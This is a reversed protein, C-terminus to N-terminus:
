ANAKRRALGILGLLGSGFLWVASPIPVQSLSGEFVPQFNPLTTSQPMIFSSVSAVTTTGDGNDTVDWLAEIPANFNVINLDWLMNPTGTGRANGYTGDGNDVFTVDHATWVDGLFISANEISITGNDFDWKWSQPDTSLGIPGGDPYSMLFTYTGTWIGTLGATGADANISCGLVIAVATSVITRKMIEAMDKM